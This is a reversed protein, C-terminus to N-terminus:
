QQDNMDFIVNANGTELLPFLQNHPVVQLQPHLTPFIASLEQLSDSLLTLQAFTSCGISLTEIKRDDPNSFRMKAQEAIAVIQKADAIFHLLGINLGLKFIAHQMQM